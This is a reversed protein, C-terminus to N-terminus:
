QGTYFGFFLSAWSKFFYFLNTPQKQKRNRYINQTKSTVNQCNLGDFLCLEGCTRSLQDLCIKVLIKDADRSPKIGKKFRYLVDGFVHAVTSKETLIQKRSIVLVSKM